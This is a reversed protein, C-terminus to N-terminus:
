DCLVMEETVDVMTARLCRAGRSARAGEGEKRARRVMDEAEAEAAAGPPERALVTWGTWGAGGADPM